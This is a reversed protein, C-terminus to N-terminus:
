IKKEHVNCIYSESLKPLDHWMVVIGIGLCDLNDWINVIATPQIAGAQMRTVGDIVKTFSGTEISCSGGLKWEIM